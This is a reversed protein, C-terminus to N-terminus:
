FKMDLIFEYSVGGDNHTVKLTHSFTTPPFDAGFISEDKFEMELHKLGTEIDLFDETLSGFVKAYGGLTKDSKSYNGVIRYRGYFGVHDAKNVKSISTQADRDLAAVFHDDLLDKTDELIENFITKLYLMDYKKNADQALKREVEERWASKFMGLDNGERDYLHGEEFAENYKRLKM